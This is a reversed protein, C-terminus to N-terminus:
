TSPKRPVRKLTHSTVKAKVGSSLGRQQFRYVFLVRNNTCVNLDISLWVTTTMYCRTANFKSIIYKEYCRRTPGNMFNTLTLNQLLYITYIKNWQFTIHSHTTLIFNNNSFSWKIDFPSRIFWFLETLCRPHSRPSKSEFILAISLVIPSRYM